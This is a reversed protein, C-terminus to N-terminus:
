APAVTTVTGSSGRYKLAGAEVWLYGGATPDASPAATVNGLKTYGYRRSIEMAVGNGAGADTTRGIFFNSGEDSGSESDSNVGIRWRVVGATQLETYGFQGAVRDIALVGASSGNRVSATTFKAAAASTLGITVSNIASVAELATGASNVQIVKSANGSLTPLKDFAAGILALEARITASSGAARNAPVGSPNFYPNSM